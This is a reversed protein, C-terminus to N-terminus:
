RILSVTGSKTFTSGDVRELEAWYTYVGTQAVKGRWFGDWGSTPDDPFLSDREFVLGGWRDTVLMRRILSVGRDASLFFRNNPWEADPNFVNPAYVRNDNSVTIRIEDTLVCGDIDTVEITYAINNLPMVCFSACDPDACPPQPAWQISQPVLSYEPNICLSDGKVIEVDEGLYVWPQRFILNINVLSDCGTSAAGPLIELGTRNNQDYRRGNIILVDDPCLTDTYISFPPTLVELEVRIISDCGAAAGGPIMEVGAPHFAHYPTGNILITDGECITAQFDSVTPYFGLNIHIISDCGNSAGGEVTEEGLYFNAHYATGNVWVTDGVCITTNLNIEAPQLFKLSVIIVSDTGDSSAGPLIVTGSPSSPDFIQNGILLSQNSCYTNNLYATDLPIRTAFAACTTCFLCGAALMTKILRLM